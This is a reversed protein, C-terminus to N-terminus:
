LSALIMKKCWAETMENWIGEGEVVLSAPPQEPRAIGQLRCTDM